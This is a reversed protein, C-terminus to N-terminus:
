YAVEKVMQAGINAYPDSLEIEKAVSVGDKTIHAPGPNAGASEPGVKLAGANDIHAISGGGAGVAHVDIMPVGSPLGCVKRKTTYEAIGGKVLSVDTSTGGM